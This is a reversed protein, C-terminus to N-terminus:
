LDSIYVLRWEAELEVISPRISLFPALCYLYLFLSTTLILPLCRKFKGDMSIPKWM